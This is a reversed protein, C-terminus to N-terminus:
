YRCWCRYLMFQNTLSTDPEMQAHLTYGNSFWCYCFCPKSQGKMATTVTRLRLQLQCCHQGDVYPTAAVLTPLETSHCSNNSTSLLCWPANRRLWSCAVVHHSQNCMAVFPMYMGIVVVRNASIIALSGVESLPHVTETALSSYTWGM